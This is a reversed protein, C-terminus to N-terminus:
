DHDSYLDTTSFDPPLGPEAIRGEAIEDLWKEVDDIRSDGNVGAYHRALFEEITMALSTAHALLGNATQEDIKLNVPKTAM